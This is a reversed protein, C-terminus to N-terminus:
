ELSTVHLIIDDTPNVVIGTHDVEFDSVTVCKSFLVYNISIEM